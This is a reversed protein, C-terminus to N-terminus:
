PQLKIPRSVVTFKMDGDDSIKASITVQLRMDYNFSIMNDIVTASEAQALSAHYVHERLTDALASALRQQVTPLRHDITM